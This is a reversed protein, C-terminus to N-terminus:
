SFEFISIGARTDVVRELDCGHPALMKQYEAATRQRAAFLTLMVIDLTKSWDPERTEPVETEILIVKADRPASRKVSAIIEAAPEDAWDHIVEMLIFCDGAPLGDKFFDGAQFVLRGGENGAAKAAEIVHPLDFLTGNVQPYARLIARILHGQGGGVDVIHDFQSFDYSAVIAGIQGAAKASMAADFVRAEGPNASLRGWFGGVFAVEAGAKGTKLSNVLLEASRWNIPLGFMRVFDRMSTPHDSRLLNSAPTQSVKGNELRFVGHSDLLRLMRSLADPNAGSATALTAVDMEADGLADAVSLEAIAHLCRSAFYGASLEQICAFPNQDTM